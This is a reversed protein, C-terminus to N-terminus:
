AQEQGPRTWPSTGRAGQRDWCSGAKSQGQEKQPHDVPPERLVTSNDGKVGRDEGGGRETERVEGKNFAHGTLRAM